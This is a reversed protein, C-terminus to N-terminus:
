AATVQSPDPYCLEAGDEGELFAVWRSLFKDKKSCRRDASSSSGGGLFVCLQVWRLTSGDGIVCLHRKPRTM